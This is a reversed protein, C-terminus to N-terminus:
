LATKIVTRDMSNRAQLMPKFGVAGERSAQAGDLESQRMSVLVGARGHGQAKGLIVWESCVHVCKPVSSWESGATDHAHTFCLM